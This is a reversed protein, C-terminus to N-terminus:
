SYADSSVYKASHGEGTVGVKWIRGVAVTLGLSLCRTYLLCVSGIGPPQRASAAIPGGLLFAAVSARNLRSRGCCVERWAGPRSGEGRRRRVTIETM